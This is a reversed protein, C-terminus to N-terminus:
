YINITVTHVVLVLNVREINLIIHHLFGILKLIKVTNFFIITQSQIQHYKQILLESLYGLYPM